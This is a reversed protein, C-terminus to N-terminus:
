GGGNYNIINESSKRERGGNLSNSGDRIGKCCCVYM